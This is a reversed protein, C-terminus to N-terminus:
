VREKWNRQWNPALEAISQLTEKGANVALIKAEVQPASEHLYSFTEATGESVEYYGASEGVLTVDTTRSGAAFVSVVQTVVLAAALLTGFFRKKM